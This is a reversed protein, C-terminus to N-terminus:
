YSSEFQTDWIKESQYAQLAKRKLLEDTRLYQKSWTKFQELTPAPQQYLFDAVAELAERRDPSADQYKELTAALFQSRDRIDVKVLFVEECSQMLDKNLEIDLNTLTDGFFDQHKLAEVPTAAKFLEPIQTVEQGQVMFTVRAAELYAQTQSRQEPSLTEWLKIADQFDKRRGDTLKYFLTVEPPTLAIERGEIMVTPAQEYAIRPIVAQKTLQVDGNEAENLFM